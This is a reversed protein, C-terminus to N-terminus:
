KAKSKLEALREKKKRLREKKEKVDQEIEQELMKIEEELQGVDVKYSKEYVETVTYIKGKEDKKIDKIEKKM